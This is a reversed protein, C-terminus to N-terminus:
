GSANGALNDAYGPEDEIHHHCDIIEGAETM